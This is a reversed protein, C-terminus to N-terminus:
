EWADRPRAAASAEFVGHPLLAHVGQVGNVIQTIRLDVLVSALALAEVREVRLEAVMLDLMNNLAIMTAENLDEHGGFAIRGAPTSARPWSLSMSAHLHLSLEVYEMGCEIATGGVEGDGQAAHGDGFSFLAGAVEIPLYLSTGATLDRCDLNGGVRRPPRTPHMGPEAPAVGMIGLFPRLHVTRGSPTRAVGLDPDIQWPLFCFGDIGLRPLWERVEGVWTSGVREPRLAHVRVELTMGPEASLVAIPGVLCHGTDHAPDSRQARPIVTRMIDQEPAFPDLGWGADLTRCIITDGSEVTLIPAREPSFCGALHAVEFAIHHLMTTEKRPTMGWAKM